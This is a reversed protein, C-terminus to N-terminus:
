GQLIPIAEPPMQRPSVVAVLVPSAVSRASQCLLHPEEALWRLGSEIAARTPLAGPGPRTRKSPPSGPFRGAIRGTSGANPNSVGKSSGPLSIFRFPHLVQAHREPYPHPDPPWHPGPNDDTLTRVGSPEWGLVRRARRPSQTPAPGAFAPSCAEAATIPQSKGAPAEGRLPM